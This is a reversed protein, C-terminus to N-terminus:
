DRIQEYCQGNSQHQVKYEVNSILNKQIISIIRLKISIKGELKACRCFKLQSEKEKEFKKRQHFVITKATAYKILLRKAAEKIKFGEEFVLQHLREKSEQPVKIYTRKYEQFMGPIVNNRTRQEKKEPSQLIESNAKLSLDEQHVSDSNNM